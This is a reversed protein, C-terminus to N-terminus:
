LPIERSIEHFKVATKKHFKVIKEFFELVMTKGNKDYLGFVEVKTLINGKCIKM